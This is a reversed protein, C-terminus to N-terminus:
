KGSAVYSVCDGQNSFPTGDPRAMDMWGGQKCQDKTSPVPIEYTFLTAAVLTNDVDFAQESDAFAWGADVVLQIGTVTYNGYKVLATAYPDYFTGGDLQSTDVPNVGELLDGTNLWAGAPCNTYNPPPGIYVFMNGTDTNDPSALAIQFRPSGGACSDDTEFRYDTNLAGLQAFTIGSEVGYDVGAYGPSADSVLHVARNSANGPSVYSAEGFLSYHEPTHFAFAGTAVALLSVAPIIYALKKM